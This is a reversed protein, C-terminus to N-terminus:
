DGPLKFVIVMQLRYMQQSERHQDNKIDTETINENLFWSPM